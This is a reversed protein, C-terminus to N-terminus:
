IDMVTKSSYIQIKILQLKPDKNFNATKEHYSQTVNTEM